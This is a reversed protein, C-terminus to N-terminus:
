LLFNEIFYGVGDNDNSLTELRAAEKVSPRANHMAVGWGVSSLMEIDNIDDGFAVVNKPDINQNQLLELLTNGKNINEGMIELCRAPFDPNALNHMRPTTLLIALQEGFKETLTDYLKLIDEESSMIFLKQIRNSDITTLDQEVGQISVLGLYQKIYPNNDNMEYYFMDDMYVITLINLERCLQLIYQAHEKKIPHEKDIQNTQMNWLVAGNANIMYKPLELQQAFKLATGVVRGTVIYVEKGSAMLKKIMQTNYDSCEAQSNILTGDIDIAVAQIENKDFNKLDHQLKTKLHEMNTEKFKILKNNFQFPIIFLIFLNFVKFNTNLMKSKM